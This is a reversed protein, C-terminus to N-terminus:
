WRRFWSNACLSRVTHLSMITSCCGNELRRYSQGLGGSISNCDNLVAQYFAANIIQGAPVFEKHIIGKNDFFAILLTKVQIKWVVTKKTAPFDTLVVGDIATKTGSRVPLVLDWKRHRHKGSFNSGVWVHFHFRWFNGDTKSEARRNAQAICIPLLDEAVWIM